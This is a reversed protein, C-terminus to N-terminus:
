INPGTVALFGPVPQKVKEKYFLGGIPSRQVVFMQAIKHGECSALATGIKVAGGVAAKNQGQVTPPSGYGVPGVGEHRHGSAPLGLPGRGRSM